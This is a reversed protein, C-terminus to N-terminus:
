KPHEDAFITAVSTYLGWLVIAVGFFPWFFIELLRLPKSHHLIRGIHGSWIGMCAYVVGVIIYDVIDLM